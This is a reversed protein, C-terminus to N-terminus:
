RCAIEFLRIKQIDVPREGLQCLEIRLLRSDHLQPKKTPSEISSVASASRIEGAVTLRSQTTAFLQIRLRRVAGPV